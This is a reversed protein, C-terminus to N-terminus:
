LLFALWLVALWLLALLLLFCSPWFFCICSPLCPALLCVLLGFFEIPLEDAIESQCLLSLRLKDLQPLL